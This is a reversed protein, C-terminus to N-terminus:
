KKIESDPVNYTDIVSYQRDEDFLLGSSAEIINNTEYYNEAPFEITAVGEHVNAITEIQKNTYFNLTFYVKFDPLSKALTGNNYFSISYKRPETFSLNFTILTTSIRPCITGLGTINGWTTYKNTGYWNAGLYLKKTDDRRWSWINRPIQVSKM